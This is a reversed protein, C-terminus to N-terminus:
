ARGDLLPDTFLEVLAMSFGPLLPTELADGHEASLERARGFRREGELRYVGVRDVEPDVIWLEGVGWHEYAHRKLVEDTRRSSPSLVEIALDPPGEVRKGVIDLRDIRVLLIDPQVVDHPSLIVDTPAILVAALRRGEAFTVLAMGLRMLIRQHRTNPAPTVVHEGDILEHRQGDDPFLEYDELGLKFSAQPMTDM